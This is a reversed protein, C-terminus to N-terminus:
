EKRRLLKDPGYQSNERVLKLWEAKTTFGPRDGVRDDFFKFLNLISIGDPPSPLAEVIEHAQIPRPPSGTTPQNSFHSGFVLYCQLYGSVLLTPAAQGLGRLPTRRFSSSRRARSATLCRELLARAMALTVLPALRADKALRLLCARTRCSRRSRRREPHSTAVLSPPVLLAPM